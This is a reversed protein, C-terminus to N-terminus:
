QGVGPVAKLKSAVFQTVAAVGTVVIAATAGVLMNQWWKM